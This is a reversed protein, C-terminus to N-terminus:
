SERCWLPWHPDPVPMPWKLRVQLRLQIIRTKQARPRQRIRAPSSTIKTLPSQNPIGRRGPGGKRSWPRWRNRNGNRIFRLFRAWSSSALWRQAGACLPGPSGVRLRPLSRFLRLRLCRRSHCWRGAVQAPQCIISFMCGTASKLSREVFAILLNPDPHDGLEAMAQLRLSVIKPILAM